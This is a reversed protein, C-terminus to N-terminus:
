GKTLTTLHNPVRTTTMLGAMNMALGINQARIGPFTASTQSFVSMKAGVFPNQIFNFTSPATHM